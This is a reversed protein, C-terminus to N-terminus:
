PKTIVVIVDSWDGVPKDDILYRLRYRREEPKGAQAPAREDTYPSRFDRELPTWVIEDGRQGEVLVGDYKGKKWDVRVVSGAMATAEGTPKANDTSAPASQTSNIQLLDGIAQSFNPHARVREEWKGFRKLVGRGTLTVPPAIQTYVPMEPESLGDQSNGLLDYKYTTVAKSLAQGKQANQIVFRMTRCDDQVGKTEETSFGLNAAVTPFEAECNISWQIRENDTRPIPM